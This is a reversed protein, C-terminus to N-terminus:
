VNISDVASDNKKLEEIQTLVYSQVADDICDELSQKDKKMKKEYVNCKNVCKTAITKWQGKTAKHDRLTKYHKEINDLDACINTLDNKISKKLNVITDSDVYLEDVTTNKLLIDTKVAM